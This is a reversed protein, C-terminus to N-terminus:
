LCITTRTIFEKYIDKLCRLFQENIVSCPNSGVFNFNFDIMVFWM